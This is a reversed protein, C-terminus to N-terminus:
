RGPQVEVGRSAPAPRGLFQVLDQFLVNLGDDAVASIGIVRPFHHVLGGLGMMVAAPGADQAFRLVHHFGELVRM